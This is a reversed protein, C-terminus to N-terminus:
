HLGFSHVGQAEIGPMSFPVTGLLVCAAGAVPVPSVRNREHLFPNQPQWHWSVWGQKEVQRAILALETMRVVGRATAEEVLKVRWADVLMGRLPRLANVTLLRDEPLGIELSKLIRIVPVGAARICAALPGFAKWFERQSPLLPAM